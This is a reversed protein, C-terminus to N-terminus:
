SAAPFLKPEAGDHEAALQHEQAGAGGGDDEADVEPEQFNDAM